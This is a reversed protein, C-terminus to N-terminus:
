QKGSSCVSQAKNRDGKVKVVMSNLYIKLSDCDCSIHIMIKM